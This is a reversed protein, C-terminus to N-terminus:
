QRMTTAVQDDINDHRRRSSWKLAVDNIAINDHVNDDDCRGRWQTSTKVVVHYVHHGRQRRLPCWWGRGDGVDDNHQQWTRHRWHLTMSTRTFDDHDDRHGHDDRRWQSSPSTQLRSTSTAIWSTMWSTMTAVVSRRCSSSLTLTSMTTTM